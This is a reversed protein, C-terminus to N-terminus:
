SDAPELEHAKEFREEQVFLTSSGGHKSDTTDKCYIVLGSPSPFVTMESYQTSGSNQYLIEFTQPKQHTMVENYNDAIWEHQDNRVFDFYSRGIIEDSPLGLFQECARNCYTYNYNTDIAFIMDSISDILEEIIPKEPPLGNRDDSQNPQNRERQESKRLFEVQKRLANIEDILQAKTKSQRSM